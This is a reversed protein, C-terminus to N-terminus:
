AMWPVTIRRMGCAINHRGLGLRAAGGRPLCFYRPEFTPSHHAATADSGFFPRKRRVRLATEPAPRSHPTETRLWARLEELGPWDGTDLTVEKCTMWLLLLRQWATSAANMLLTKDM